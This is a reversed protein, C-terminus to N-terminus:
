CRLCFRRGVGALRCPRDRDDRRGTPGDNTTAIADTTISEVDTNM